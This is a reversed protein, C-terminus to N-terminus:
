TTGARPRGTSRCPTVGTGMSIEPSPYTVRIASSSASMPSVKRTPIACTHTDTQSATCARPTSGMVTGIGWSASIVRIEMSSDPWRPRGKTCGGSGPMARFRPMRQPARRKDRRLQRYRCGDDVELQEVAGGADLSGFGSQEDWGPSGLNVASCTLANKVQLALAGPFALRSAGCRGFVHGAAMSTGVFGDYGGLTDQWIFTTPSSSAEGGPAVLDLGLGRASYDAVNGARTTAGVALVAPHNAPYFVDIASNGSSVVIVVGAADAREIAENLTTSAGCGPCGLSMNIVRAGNAVAWDIGRAVDSTNAGGTSSFVKVPMVSAEPAMGAGEVGNDSCQAASGAVHSGHGHTDLAAGPGAIDSVANYEAVFPRCFGDNGDNVGTDLIALRVGDGVTSLWAGGANAAHLHWQWRPDSSNTYLPDPSQFPPTAQKDLILDLEAVEVGPRGAMEEAWDIPEWGAPM